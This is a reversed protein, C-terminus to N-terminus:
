GTGIVTVIRAELDPPPTDWVDPRSLLTHITAMEAASPEDVSDLHDTM